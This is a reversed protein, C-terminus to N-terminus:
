RLWKKLKRVKAALAPDKMTAARQQPSLEKNYTDIFDKEEKTVDYGFVKGRGAWDTPLWKQQVDPSPVESMDIGQLELEAIMQDTTAPNMLKRAIDAKMAPTVTKDIKEFMNNVVKLYELFKDREKGAKTKDPKPPALAKIAPKDGLELAKIYDPTMGAQPTLESYFQKRQQTREDEKGWLDEQREFISAEMGYRGMSMMDQITQRKKEHEARDAEIIQKAVSLSHMEQTRQEDLEAQRMDFHAKTGRAFATTGGLAANIIAENPSNATAAALGAALLSGYMIGKKQEPSIFSKSSQNQPM